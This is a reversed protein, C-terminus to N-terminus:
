DDDGGEYDDCVNEDNFERKSFKHCIVIGGFHKEGYKCTSCCDALRLNQPEIKEPLEVQLSKLIEVVDDLFMYQGDGSSNDESAYFVNANEELFKVYKDMEIVMRMM